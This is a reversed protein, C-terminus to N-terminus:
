LSSSTDCINTILMCIIKYTSFTLYVPLQIPDLALELHIYLLYIHLIYILIHLIYLLYFLTLKGIKKRWSDEKKFLPDFKLIVEEWANCKSIKNSYEENATSWLASQPDSWTLDVCCNVHGGQIAILNQLRVSYSSYTILIFNKRGTSILKLTIANQFKLNEKIREV